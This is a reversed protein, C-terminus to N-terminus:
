TGHGPYCMFSMVTIKKDENQETFDLVAEEMENLLRQELKKYNIKDTTYVVETGGSDWSRIIKQLIGNPKYFFNFNIEIETTDQKIQSVIKM